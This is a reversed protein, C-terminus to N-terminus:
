DEKIKDKDHKIANKPCIEHCKQCRICKKMDIKAKGNEMSIANVPCEDVCIECGICENEDVWPM